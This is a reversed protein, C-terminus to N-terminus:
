VARVDALFVAIRRTLEDARGGLEKVRTLMREAAMGSQQAAASLGGVHGNVDKTGAAAQQVNRAIEATAANQEEVAAAVETTLRSVEAITQAIGKVGIVASDTEAQISAIQATIDDTAHATQSALAKVESAVVAFGRGAEGARAAEITANLALLNTQAAINGILQVVEGIKDSALALGGIQASVRDAAQQAKAAIDASQVIRRGIERISAALEEAATAVTNVNISAEESAAGVSGARGSVERATQATTEAQDRMEGAASVVERIATGSDRDFDRTLAEVREGRAQKGAQAAANESAVQAAKIANLRLTEIAEAMTGIEDRRARAPVIVAHDAQALRGITRTLAGLPSVVRRNFIIAVAAGAGIVAAMMALALTLAFLADSRGQAAISTAEAIAADRMGLPSDLGPLHGRRYEAVTLPYKGDGRGAAMVTAYVAAADHFYLSRVREIAQALGAPNGERNAAAVIRNWDQDIRAVYDALQELTASSMPKESGISAVFISGRRGAWDRMDWSTRAIDIFGSTRNDARIAAIQLVDLIREIKDYIAYFKASLAKIADPERAGKPLKLQVDVGARLAVVDGTLQQLSAAQAPSGPLDGRQLLDAAARLLADTRARLDALTARDQDGAANEAALAVNYPGRENTLGEFIRAVAGITEITRGAQIESTYSQWKDAVLFAAALIAISGGASICALFFTRVRM